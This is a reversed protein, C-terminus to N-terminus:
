GDYFFALNQRIIDIEVIINKQRQERQHEEITGTSAEGTSRMTALRGEAISTCTSGVNYLSRLLREFFSFSSFKASVTTKLHSYVVSLVLCDRFIVGKITFLVDKMSFGWKQNTLLAGHCNLLKWEKRDPMLSINAILTEKPESTRRREKAM